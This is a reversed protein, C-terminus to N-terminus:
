TVLMDGLHGRLSDTANQAEWKLRIINEMQGSVQTVEDTDDHVALVLDRWRDAINPLTTDTFVHGSMQAQVFESSLLALLYFPTIGYKNQPDKVRLTLLERTLLVNKDRSSAMAVTGIRYSGRRVMIIDGEQPLTKNKTMKQFTEVPVMSVPNRYMEWNVIDKVRIYPITGQGKAAAPPSGHGDWCTIVGEEVLQGLTIGTRGAPINVGQDRKSLYYAPVLANQEIQSYPVTFTFRNSPNDPEQVETKVISVDDWPDSTGPRHLTKGKHDHGMEEPVAMVITNQQPTGKGLVLLCTKANCYPRFTNHPLQVVAKLNNDKLIFQRLYGLQQGHLVTEPLVIALTGRDVLMQLCREVFLIYPDRNIVSGTKHHEGTEKDQKWRHGLEFNACDSTLVKTKTGFPPNTLVFDFQKFSTGDVFIAKAPDTFHDAEHLSNDHVVNSKGDGAISMHAKAIKVLDSEKDIGFLTRAALSKKTSELQPAGKYRPDEDMKKWIHHMAQILFGGSGCAPDCVTQNPKPDAIAVALEVVNRPTFFEGKEGVLRSEAFVEFADGVVDTETSLLSGRELQGVVWATSRADLTVTDSELFVGDSQLDEKVREFLGDIRQKVAEPEEGFQVRFDPPRGLFSKEDEIKCFILKIMEAGLKERRSINTNAYLNNLIRRFATILDARQFPALESKKIRGIDSITQGRAPINYLYGELVANQSTDKFLYEIDNGNTWVAWIASTATMYSKLQAIGDDREPRKTEVIGWVDRAPDRGSASKYVVIDAKDPYFGTGRPIEVETDLEGKPYGYSEVLIREYDQRVKEEPKSTDVSKRTAFDESIAM